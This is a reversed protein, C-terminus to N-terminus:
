AWPDTPGILEGTEPDFGAADLADRTWPADPFDAVVLLRAAALRIAPEEEWIATQLFHAQVPDVAGRELWDRCRACANLTRDPSPDEPFPALEYLRVDDRGACLECRGKSRRTIAKGLVGVAARQKVKKRKM